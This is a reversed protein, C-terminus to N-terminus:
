QGALLQDYFRNEKEVTTYGMEIVSAQIFKFWRGKKEFSIDPDRRLMELMRLVIDLETNPNRYHAFSIKSEAIMSIFHDAVTETIERPDAARVRERITMVPAISERIAKKVAASPDLTNAVAHAAQMQEDISTIEDQCKKSSGMIADVFRGLAACIRKGREKAAAKDILAISAKAQREFLVEENLTGDANHISPMTIPLKRVFGPYMEQLERCNAEHLEKNYVGNPMFSPWNKEIVVPQEDKEVELEEPISPDADPHPFKALNKLVWEEYRHDCKRQGQHYLKGDTLVYNSSSPHYLSTFGKGEGMDRNGFFPANNLQYWTIYTININTGLMLNYGTSNIMFMKKMEDFSLTGNAFWKAIQEAEHCTARDIAIAGDEFRIVTVTHLFTEGMKFLM